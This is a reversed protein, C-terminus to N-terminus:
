KIFLNIGAHQRRLIWSSEELFGPGLICSAIMGNEDHLESVMLSEWIFYRNLM